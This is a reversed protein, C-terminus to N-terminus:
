VRRRRRRTQSFPHWHHDDPWRVRNDRLAMLGITIADAMDEDKKPQLILGTAEEACARSWAKCTASKRDPPKVDSRAFMISQWAATNIVVVPVRRGHLARFWEALTVRHEVLVKLTKVNPGCFQDEIVLADAEDMLALMRERYFPAKRDLTGGELPKHTDYDILAYGTAAGPDVSLVTLDM